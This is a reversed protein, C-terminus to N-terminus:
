HARCKKFVELLGEVNGFDDSLASPIFALPKRHPFNQLLSHVQSAAEIAIRRTEREDM